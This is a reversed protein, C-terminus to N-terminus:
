AVKKKKESVAPAASTPATEPAPGAPPPGDWIEAAKVLADTQAWAASMSPIADPGQRLLFHVHTRTASLVTVHTSEPMNGKAVEEIERAAERKYIAVIEDKTPTSMTAFSVVMKPATYV